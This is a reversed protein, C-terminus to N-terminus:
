FNPDQTDRLKLSAYISGFPDEKFTPNQMIEQFSHLDKMMEADRTKLPKLARHKEIKKNEEVSKMEMTPLADKLSGLNGFAGIKKKKALARRRAKKSKGAVTMDRCENISSSHNQALLQYIKDDPTIALRRNLSRASLSLEKSKDKARATSFNHVHKKYKAKGM